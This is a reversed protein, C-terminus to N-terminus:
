VGALKPRRSVKVSGTPTAEDGDDEGLAEAETAEQLDVADMAPDPSGSPMGMSGGQIASAGPLSAGQVARSAPDAEAARADAIDQQRRIIEAIRENEPQPTNANPAAPGGLRGRTMLDRTAQENARVRLEALEAQAKNSIDVLQKLEAARMSDQALFEVSGPQLPMRDAGPMHARIFWSHPGSLLSEDVKQPGATFDIHQQSGHGLTLRFAKVFNVFVDAM